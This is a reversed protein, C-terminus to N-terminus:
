LLLAALAMPVVAGFALVVTRQADNSTEATATAGTSTSTRHMFSTSSSSTENTGNFRIANNQSLRYLDARADGSRFLM